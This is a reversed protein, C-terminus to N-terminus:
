AKQEDDQEATQESDKITQEVTSYVAKFTEHFSTPSLRGAEIFKVVIEKTARLILENKSAM